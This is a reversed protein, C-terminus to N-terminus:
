SMYLYKLIEREKESIKIGNKGKSGGKCKADPRDVCTKISKGPESRSAVIGKLYLLPTKVERASVAMKLESIGELVPGYGYKNYLEGLFAYDGRKKEVSEISRYDSVLEAILEKAAPPENDRRKDKESDAAGARPHSDQVNSKDPSVEVAVAPAAPLAAGSNNIDSRLSSIFLEKKDQENTITINTNNPATEAGVYTSHAGLHTSDAGVGGLDHCPPHQSCGGGEGKFERKEPPDCLHYVNSLYEGGEKKQFTKRIWGKEELEAVARKATDRSIGCDKAIRNYSPWAQRDQNACRAIYLRVLKAYASLDSSFVENFDWFWNKRRSDALYDNVNSINERIM